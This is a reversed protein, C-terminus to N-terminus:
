MERYVLEQFREDDLISDFDPNHKAERRCLRPKIDIAKQLNDIALEVEGQLAHCCAKAYYGGVHNPDREIARDCEAFAETYRGARALIIGRNAKYLIKKPKLNIARDILAIAKTFDKLFSLTLAQTSLLDSNNPEIETAQNCTSFAEEYKGLEKQLDGRVIYANISKPDIDIAKKSIKLAEDYRELRSLVTGLNFWANVSKSDIEIAKQFSELAEEYKELNGLAAGLSVWANVSKPNIDIAKQCIELVEEYRELEELVKGKNLWADIFKPDLDIAKQLSDLAKEYQEIMSLAAGRNLWADILEPDLDIAKQSNELSEEYKKLNFLVGSLAVFIATDDRSFKLATQYCDLSNEYLKISNLLNGLNSCLSYGLKPHCGTVIDDTQKKSQILIDSREALRNCRFSKYILGVCKGFGDHIDKVNSLLSQISAEIQKLLEEAVHESPSNEGEIKFKYHEPYVNLFHWGLILAIGSNKFFDDTGTPLLRHSEESMESRIFAFPVTFINPEGLYVSTFTHEIYQRLGEKRNGFLGYYLFEIIANQWDEDEYPDPLLSQSDFLEDAQQKFYDALLANTKRFKTRDDQFYAKRFVDRAVDDLCYRGKTSEVFDSKKLWEFYNEVNNADQQLGFADSEILYLIMSRDFWRCCAVVQVVRQQPTDLGQLLLEAIAQNGKSFDPELGKEKQDRVWNLYYPLGKTAKHIKAQTGGNEIGIQKLYDETDKKSFKSLQTEHLLKRDQNLKRWNEDAQLSRRGVVVLRVPACSLSTDEVLSQWLWQNLYSQAKEYTDLVLVISRGRSQAIQMMSNAFAQTLKSVPELMLSQLDPRDKTAPHNRVRQQIWEQLGEADEGTATSALFVAGSVDFTIPKSATATLGIVGSWIFREFWSTIKKADKSSNATGEISHQSLEFLTTNFQREQETFTDSITQSGLLEIAQQHLKRMLKLPTEIGGTKAFCIELFDVENVHADKLRGLLTTKGVGGIGCINFLLPQEYHQELAVAFRELLRKAEDTKIYHKDPVRLRMQSQHNIESPALQQTEKQALRAVELKTKLNDVEKRKDDLEISLDSPISLSTFGAAKKELHSLVRQAIELTEELDACDDM